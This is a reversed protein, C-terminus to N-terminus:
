RAMMRYIVFGALLCQVVALFYFLATRGFHNMALSALLPGLIGGVSFALIMSGMAAVM